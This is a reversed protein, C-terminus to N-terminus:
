NKKVTWDETGGLGGKFLEDDWEESWRDGLPYGWGRVGGCGVGKWAGCERPDKL